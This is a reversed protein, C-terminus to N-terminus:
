SSSLASQPSICPHRSRKPLGLRHKDTAHYRGTSDDHYCPEPHVSSTSRRTAIGLIFTGGILMVIGLVYICLYLPFPARSLTDFEHFLIGGILSIFVTMSSLYIPIALTANASALAFNLFYIQVPAVTCLIAICVYFLPGPSRVENIIITIGKVVVKVSMVAYAGCCGASLGSCWTMLIGTPRFRAFRTWHTTLGWLLVHSALVCTYAIFRPQGCLVATEELTFDTSETSGPGSVGVLAIGCLTCLSGAWGLLSLRERIGCVCGFHTLIANYVVALGNCPAVMALPAFAVALPSCTVESSFNIILGLWFRYRRRLPRGAELHASHKQILLAVTSVLLSLAAFSQGLLFILQWGAEDKVEVITTNSLITFNSANTFHARGDDSM